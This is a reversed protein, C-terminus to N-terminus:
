DAALTSLFTGAQTGDVSFAVQDNGTAPFSVSPNAVGGPPMAIPTLVGNVTVRPTGEAPVAITLTVKDGDIDLEQPIVIPAATVPAFPVCSIAQATGSTDIAIAIVNAPNALNAPLTNFTATYTGDAQELMDAPIPDQGSGVVYVNVVTGSYSGTVQLQEGPVVPDPDFTDVTVRAMPMTRRLPTIRPAKGDMTSRASAKHPPKTKTKKM